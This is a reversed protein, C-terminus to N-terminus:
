DVLFTKAAETTKAEIHEIEGRAQYKKGESDLVSEPLYKREKRKSRSLM